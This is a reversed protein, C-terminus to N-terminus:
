LCGNACLYSVFIRTIIGQIDGGHRGEPLNRNYKEALLKDRENNPSGNSFRDPMILYVVDSADFSKRNASNEKRQKLSFKKTFAVKTNESFIFHFDKPPCNQTNITVFVYNSNETKKIGEILIDNTVSISYESICNGYFMIQLKPNKMRAFWFPPEIRQIPDLM